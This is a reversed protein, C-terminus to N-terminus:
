YEKKEKLSEVLSTKGAGSKGFVTAPIFRQKNGKEMDKRVAQVGASRVETPPSNLSSFGATLVNELKSIFFVSRPINTM